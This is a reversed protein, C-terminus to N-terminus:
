DEADEDGDFQGDDFDSFDDKGVWEMWDEVDKLFLRYGASDADHNEAREKEIRKRIVYVAKQLELDKTMMEKQWADYDNFDIRGGGQFVGSNPDTFM